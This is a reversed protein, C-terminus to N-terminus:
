FFNQPTSTDDLTKYAVLTSWVKPYLSLRKLPFVGVGEAQNVIYDLLPRLEIM